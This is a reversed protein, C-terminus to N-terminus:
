LMNTPFCPLFSSRKFSVPRSTIRVFLISSASTPDAIFQDPEYCLDSSYKHEVVFM